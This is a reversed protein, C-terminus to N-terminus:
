HKRSCDTLSSVHHETENDIHTAPHETQNDTFYLHKTQDSFTGNSQRCKYCTTQNPQSHFLINLNISFHYRNKIRRVYNTRPGLILKEREQQSPSSISSSEARLLGRKFGVHRPVYRYTIQESEDEGPLSERCTQKKNKTTKKQNTQTPTQTSRQTAHGIRWSTRLERRSWNSTASQNDNHNNRNRSERETKLSSSDYIKSKDGGGGGM